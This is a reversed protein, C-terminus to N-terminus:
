VFAAHVMASRSNGADEEQDDVIRHVVSSSVQQDPKVVDDEM